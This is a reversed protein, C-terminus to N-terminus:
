EAEGKLAREAEERTIFVTKGIDKLPIWNDTDDVYGIEDPYITLSVIDWRGIKPNLTNEGIIRYIQSGAKCPLCVVGNALLHDAVNEFPFSDTNKTGWEQMLEILRDRM